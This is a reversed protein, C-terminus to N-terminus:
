PAGGSCSGPPPYYDHPTGPPQAPPPSRRRDLGEALISLKYQATFSRTVPTDHYCEGEDSGAATTWTGLIPANSRTTSM